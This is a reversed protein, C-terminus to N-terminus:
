GSVHTGHGLEDQATGTCAKPDGKSKLCSTNAVVRGALDEHALDVGADVIGVRVKAGTTRSWASPAGIRELNWQKGYGPDNSAGAPTLALGAALGLAALAAVLSKRVM